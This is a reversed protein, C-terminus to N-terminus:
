ILGLFNCHVPYRSNVPRAYTHTHTHRHTHTHTHTSTHTNDHAEWRELTILYEKQHVIVQCIIVPLPRSLYCTCLLHKCLYPCPNAECITWLLYVWIFSCLNNIKKAPCSINARSKLQGISFFSSDMQREQCNWCSIEPWSKSFFFNHKSILMKRCLFETVSNQFLLFFYVLM